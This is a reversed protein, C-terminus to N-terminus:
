LSPRFRQQPSVAFRGAKGRASLIHALSVNTERLYRSHSCMAFSDCNSNRRINAECVQLLQVVVPQLVKGVLHKLRRVICGNSGVRVIPHTYGAARWQCHPLNPLSNTQPYRFFPKGAMMPTNQFPNSGTTGQLCPSGDFSSGLLISNQCASM